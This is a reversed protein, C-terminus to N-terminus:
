MDLVHVHVLRYGDGSTEINAELGLTRLTWVATYTRNRAGEDSASLDPWGAEHLTQWSLPGEGRESAAALRALVRRVARRRVLDVERDRRIFRRGDRDVRVEDSPRDVGVVREMAALQEHLPPMEIADICERALALRSKAESTRGLKVLVELEAIRLFGQALMGGLAEVEALASQLRDYAAKVRGDRLLARALQGHAVGLYMPERLARFSRVADELFAEAGRLDGLREAAGAQLFPTLAFLRTQGNAEAFERLRTALRAARDPPGVSAFMAEQTRLQGVLLPDDSAAIRVRELLRNAEETEGSRFTAHAQSVLAEVSEPGAELRAGEEGFQRAAAFSGRINHSRALDALARAIRKPSQARRACDLGAHLIELNRAVPGEYAVVPSMAAVLDAALEPRRTCMRDFGKQLNVREEAIWDRAETPQAGNFADLWHRGREAYHQAHSTEFAELTTSDVKTELVFRRVSDYLGFRSRGSWVRSWLLSHDRLAAVTPEPDELVASAAEIRFGGEFVALRQCAEELHPALLEWSSGLALQLSRSRPPLSRDGRFLMKVPIRDHEALEQLSRYRLRTAALEVALPLGELGEVIARTLVPDLTQKPVVRAATSEFLRVAVDTDLPDLDFCIEEPLGLRIQSTVLVSLDEVGDLLSVLLEALPDVVHEANDLLLVTPGQRRGLARVLDALSTSQLRCARAIVDVLVDPDSVPDLDCTLADVQSTVELALRTKGIGAPGVITVLPARDRLLRELRARDEARGLFPLSRPRRAM